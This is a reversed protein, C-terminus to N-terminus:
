PEVGLARLLACTLLPRLRKGGALLQRSAAEDIRTARSDLLGTLTREVAGRDQEIARRVERPLAFGRSPLPDIAANTRM